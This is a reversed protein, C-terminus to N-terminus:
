RAAEIVAALGAIEDWDADSTMIVLVYTGKPSYVIAADRHLEDQFGVKDAVVANPIGAPIGERHVNNKMANLWRIRGATSIPLENRALKALFATEDEATSHINYDEFTTHIAGQANAEAQVQPQGISLLLAVACDNDSYELMLDFCEAVTHEETAMADWSMRGADTALITSYAVFLKYTSATILSEGGGVSVEYGNPGLDILAVSFSGPHANDYDEIAKRVRHAAPNVTSSPAPAPTAEPESSASVVPSANATGVTYLYVAGAGGLAVLTTGLLIGLAVFWRPRSKQANM